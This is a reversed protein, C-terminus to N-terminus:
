IQKFMTSIGGKKNTKVKDLQYFLVTTSNTELAQRAAFESMYFKDTRSTINKERPYRVSTITLLQYIQNRGNPFVGIYAYKRKVKGGFLGGTMQQLLNAM